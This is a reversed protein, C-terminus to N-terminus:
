NNFFLVEFKGFNGRELGINGGTLLGEATAPAVVLSLAVVRAAVLGAATVVVAAVLCGGTAGGASGSPSRNQM